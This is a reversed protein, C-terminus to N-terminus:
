IHRYRGRWWASWEEPTKLKLGTLRRLDNRARAREGSDALWMLEVLYYEKLEKSYRAIVPGAGRGTGYDVQEKDAEMMTPLSTLIHGLMYSEFKYQRIQLPFWEGLSNVNRVADFESILRDAIEDYKRRLSASTDNATRILKEVSPVEREGLGLYSFKLVSALWRAYVESSFRADEGKELEYEERLELIARLTVRCNVWELPFPFDNEPYCEVEYDPTEPGKAIEQIGTYGPSPSVFTFFVSVSDRSFYRDLYHALFYGHTDGKWGSPKGFAGKDRLGRLLHGTGYFVLAKYDPNADLLNWIRSSSLEDRQKLFYEFRARVFKEYRERMLTTDTTFKLDNLYSPICEPGIIRFDYRLSDRPDNLSDIRVKINRLEDFYEMNAVSIGSPMVRGYRSEGQIIMKLWPLIDGTQIYHNMDGVLASDAEIFLFLKRPIRSSYGFQNWEIDGSRDESERGKKQLELEDVWHGLVGTVMRMFYGYQHGGDGLMVIRKSRLDNLAMSDLSHFPYVKMVINRSSQPKGCGALCILLIPIFWIEAVMRPPSVKDYRSVSTGNFRKM